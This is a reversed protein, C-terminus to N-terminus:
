RRRWKFSTRTSLKRSRRARVYACTPLWNKEFIRKAEAFEPRYREMVEMHESSEHDPEKGYGEANWFYLDVADPYTEFLASLWARTHEEFLPDTYDVRAGAITKHAPQRDNRKMFRAFNYPIETPDLTFGIEVGRKGAHAFVAHFMAKIRRHAEEQSRIGQLEPSAMYPSGVFQERGIEVQDTKASRYFRRPALFGAEWNNVDGALNKEGQFTYDLTPDAGTINLNLYNLRLKAMQDIFRRYDEFGWISEHVNLPFPLRYRFGM